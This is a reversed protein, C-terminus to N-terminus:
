ASPTLKRDLRDEVQKRFADDEILALNARAAAIGGARSARALALATTIAPHVKAPAVDKLRLLDRDLERARESIETPALAAHQLEDQGGGERAAEFAAADRDVAAVFFERHALFHEGSVKAIRAAMHGLAAGTAGILAAASGGGHPDAPSAIQELMAEVSRESLMAEMQNELLRGPSYNEAAMLKGAAQEWARRPVLGIIESGAVDAGLAAAERRVAEFAEAMGTTEFDTLNMSVQVLGRSELPVGIAKVCRLGGSSERVKRAVAKAVALDGTALNVNFAILFKRAGIVTAGATPHLARDGVDPPREGIHERLWEVGGRRINELRRRDERSAAAEYFYVPVGLERWVREGLQRALTACQELSIGAVPVLPVVDAAGIRPHVGTHAPLRILEVATAIGRFAAECVARPEGALTAVSRNHDPDSEHALLSAGRVGALSALIADVVGRDRGESFNPVCEILRAAM